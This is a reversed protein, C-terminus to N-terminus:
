AILDDKLRRRLEVSQLAAGSEALFQSVSGVRPLLALIEPDRIVAQIATVFREAFIVQHPRTNRPDDLALESVGGRLAHWGSYTRTRAELPRTIGLTNHMEAITVYAPALHREREAYSGAELVGELLPGLRGACRFERFATGLWKAYPAYHREMLFCLRVIREVVQAAVIQSGLEDGVSSTRGVFAEIEAVLAWQAALLYLWVDRPYFAFRHRVAGLGLGDHFVRGATLGLLGQSPFTMWDAPEPDRYPDVGLARRWFGDITDISVLHDVPGHEIERSVRVGNDRLDPASYNTSYGRFRVPLSRRLAEDIPERLAAHDTPSLFLIARPGWQHDRSVPTDYGLVDSGDGILAAAHPLGPFGADLIPRMAERYFAECLELGPIFEAGPATRV